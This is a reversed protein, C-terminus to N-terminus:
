KRVLDTVDLVQHSFEVIVTDTIAHVTHYIGPKIYVMDGQGCIYSTYEDGDQLIIEVTGSFIYFTEDRKMHAHGGRSEGVKTSFIALHKITDDYILQAFEGKENHWRKPLTGTMQNPLTSKM